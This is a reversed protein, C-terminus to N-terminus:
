IFSFGKRKERNKMHASESENDKPVDPNKQKVIQEMFDQETTDGVACRAPLGKLYFLHVASRRTRPLCPPNKRNAAKVMQSNVQTEPKGKLEWEQGTRAEEATLACPLGQERCEPSARVGAGAHGSNALFCTVSYCSGSRGGGAM